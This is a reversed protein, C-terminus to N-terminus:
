ESIESLRALVRAQGARVQDPSPVQLTPEESDEEAESFDGEEGGAAELEAVRRRSRDIEGRISEPSLRPLLPEVVAHVPDDTMAVTEALAMADDYAYPGCVFSDWSEDDEYPAFTVIWPLERAAKDDGSDYFIVSGM